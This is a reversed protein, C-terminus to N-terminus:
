VDKPGFSAAEYEALARIVTESVDGPRALLRCAMALLVHNRKRELRLANVAAHKEHLAAALLDAKRRPEPPGHPQHIRLEPPM